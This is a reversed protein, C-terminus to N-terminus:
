VADRCVGCWRGKGRAGANRNRDVRDEIGGPLRGGPAVLENGGPVRAPTCAGLGSGASPNITIGEPLTVRTEKLNATAISYPNSWSQPILVSVNLGTPSEASRTTPQVEVSPEFPVRECNTTPGVETEAHSPNNPEEWSYAEMTAIHPGCSTPNALFPNVPYNAEKVSGYENVCGEKAEPFEAPLCVEGRESDHEHAAPIGWVTVSVDHPESVKIIGPTTVTLGDDNPRVSVILNQSFNVTKFGLEATVGFSTVEMNYLPFTTKEVTGTVDLDLSIKGVQSAVPCQPLNGFQGTNGLLQAQTCTPVATNNADFGAPLNVVITRVDNDTRNSASHAFEFSTVLDEHAAAQSTSPAIRFSGPEIAFQSGPTPVAVASGVFVLLVVVVCFLGSALGRAVGRGGGMLGNPFVRFASM